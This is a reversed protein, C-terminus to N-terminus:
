VGVGNYGMIYEQKITAPNGVVMSNNAVNKTVVAGGGVVANSGITIGPLITAGAGIVAGRGVSVHGAIVVGPGISAFEAIVTHHGLTAARNVFSFKGLRSQAGIVVGSNIYVGEEVILSHPLIATPDILPPFNMAGFRRAEVHAFQRNGPSFLAFVVRHLSLDLTTQDLRIVKEAQIAQPASPHNNIIAIVEIGRRICTEEIDVILSSGAGYLIIKDSEM